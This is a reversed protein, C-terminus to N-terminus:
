KIHCDKCLASATNAMRLFQGNTNDHPNHCSGCEVQDAGAGYLPLNAPTANFATDATNDYTVSIPHSNTLDKSMAASGTLTDGTAEFTWTRNAATASYTGNAQYLSDFTIVGDHCSLCALSIGQPAAAITMDITASSYMTYGTNDTARNWLPAAATTDTNHPAHCFICADDTEGGAQLGFTATGPGTTSLNHVTSAVDDAASASNMWPIAVIAVAAVMKAAFSLAKM